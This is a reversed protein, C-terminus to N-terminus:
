ALRVGLTPSGAGVLAEPLKLEEADAQDLVDKVRPDDGLKLLLEVLKLLDSTPSSGV